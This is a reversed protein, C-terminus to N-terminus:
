SFTLYTQIKKLLREQPMPPLPQIYLVNKFQHRGDKNAKNAKPHEPPIHIGIISHTRTTILRYPLLIYTAIDNLSDLHYHPRNKGVPFVVTTACHRSIEEYFSSNEFNIILPLGCLPCPVISKPKRRIM